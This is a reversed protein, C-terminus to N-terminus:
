LSTPVRVVLFPNPFSVILTFNAASSAKSGQGGMNSRRIPEISSTTLGGGNTPLKTNGLRWFEIRQKSGSAKRKTTDRATNGTIFSGLALKMLAKPRNNTRRALLTLERNGLEELRFVLVERSVGGTVCHSPVSFLFPPFANQANDLIVLCM